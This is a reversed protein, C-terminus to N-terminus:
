KKEKKAKNYAMIEARQDPYHNVKVQTPDELLRRIAKALREAASDCDFSHKSVGACVTGTNDFIFVGWRTDEPTECVPQVAIIM